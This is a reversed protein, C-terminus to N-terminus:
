MQEKASATSMSTELTSIYTDAEKLWKELQIVSVKQPNFVVRDVERAGSWGPEVSFVGPKGSLASVGVDYCHVVFTTKAMGPPVEATASFAILIITLITASVILTVQM